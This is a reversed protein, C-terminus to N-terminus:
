YSVLPKMSNCKFCRLVRGDRGIPNNHTKFLCSYSTSRLFTKRGPSGKVQLPNGHDTIFVPESKVAPDNSERVWAAPYVYDKMNEYTMSNCTARTLHENEESVNAATLLFVTQVGEPPKIDFM